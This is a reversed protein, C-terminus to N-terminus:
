PLAKRTDMTDTGGPGCIAPFLKGGLDHHDQGM